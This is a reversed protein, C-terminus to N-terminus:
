FYRKYGTKLKKIYQNPIRKIFDNEKKMFVFSNRMYPNVTGTVQKLIYLENKARTIAVYFLREEEDIRKERIAMGNPFDGPNVSILIVVKWELGKSGHITTLTVEKEEKEKRSSSVKINESLTMEELFKELTEYKDAIEIFREIDMNRSRSDKFTLKSYEKYHNKFVYEIIDSATNNKFLEVFFNLVNKNKKLLSTELGIELNKNDNLSDFINEYVRVATKSGIKPFLKLARTWSIKDYPNQVIKLFSLIDKIHATEIFRKGSLLRYPIKKSDLKQQLTMSLFHSRYLVAIENPELGEDLKEKIIKVVAESQELDDFTEIIIPKDISNRVSKLTKHVSNLPIMENVLNVIEPTSRYNTQIKFLTSNEMFEKVNEFRAGRFSYISQSDDGVAILNGHVSSLAEVIELQIKNTDQFEDVLVYRYKSSIFQLIEKNMRFLVATNVLIDDYDMANIDKKIEAYKQWIYEIDNEYEILNSSVELISERLSKLTNKSYSIIKMIVNEKPLKQARDGINEKYENRAIKLVDKADESDLITFNNKYGLKGAYRRLIANCVHHFTGATMEEIDSNTVNKVREIMEKAAARTFTVLLINKPNIGNYMLYAIKYTIVRTKGSGPGAIILSRGRSNVVAELQESDLENKIFEPINTELEFIDEDM